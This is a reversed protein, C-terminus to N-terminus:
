LIKSTQPMTNKLQNFLLYIFIFLNQKEVVMVSM